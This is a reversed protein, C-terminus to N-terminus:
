SPATNWPSWRSGAVPITSGVASANGGPAFALQILPPNAALSMTHGMYAEISAMRWYPASPKPVRGSMRHSYLWAM